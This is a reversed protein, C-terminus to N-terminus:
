YDTGHKGPNRKADRMIWQFRKIYGKRPEPDEPCSDDFRKAILRENKARLAAQHEELRARGKDFKENMRARAAARKANREDETSM